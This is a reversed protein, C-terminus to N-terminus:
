LNIIRKDDKMRRSVNFKSKKIGNKAYLFIHIHEMRNAELGLEYSFCVYNVNPFNEKIYAKLLEANLWFRAFAEKDRPNNIVVQWKRSSNPETSKARVEKPVEQNHTNNESM